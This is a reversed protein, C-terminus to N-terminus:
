KDNGCVARISMPFLAVVYIILFAHFAFGGWHTGALSLFPGKLFKMMLVLILLGIIGMVIGKVNLGTEKFKVWTKEIFRGVCFGLLSGIDKYGDNMMKQPDVLLKDNVYDMPYSKFTIYILALVCLVIGGALLINEKEPKAEVYNFFRVSAWISLAGVILGVIVDQPTHVGLYNRSFATLLLLLIFISGAIRGYKSRWYEVTTGGYMSTATTTHGSPFSYGTATTIADGAPIIRADRIWPRYACVTLKVVATFARAFCFAGLIRLGKTKSMCWYIFVPMGLLGTIAFLSLNELFPTLADNIGMRFDQLFLLYSIDM